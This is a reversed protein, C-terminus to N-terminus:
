ADGEKLRPELGRALALLENHARRLLEMGEPTPVFYRRERQDGAGSETRLESAVLGRSELRKLAIYVAAPAVERGTREALETVVSATYAERELHLCALLVRHEFSGLLETAPM